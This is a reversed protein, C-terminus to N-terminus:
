LEKAGQDPQRPLLETGVRAFDNTKGHEKKGSVAEDEAVKITAVAKRMDLLLMHLDEVGMELRVLSQQQTEGPLPTAYLPHNEFAKLRQSLGEVHELVYPNEDIGRKLSNYFEIGRKIKSVLTKIKAEHTNGMRMEEHEWIEHLIGELQHSAPILEALEDQVSKPLEQPSAQLALIVKTVREKLLGLSFPSLEITENGVDLTQDVPISGRILDGETKEEESLYWAAKEISRLFHNLTALPDGGMLALAEKVAARNDKIGQPSLLQHETPPVPVIRTEAAKKEKRDPM